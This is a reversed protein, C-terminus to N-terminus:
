GRRRYRQPRHDRGIEILLDARADVEPIVWEFQDKVGEWLGHFEREWAARDGGCAERRQAWGASCRWERSFALDTTLSVLFDVHRSFADYGRTRLGVGFGEFVIWDVPGQVREDEGARERLRKDFRPLEVAVGPRAAKLAGLRGALEMDHAGIAWWHIGRAKREHGRYYFDDISLTAVRAQPELAALCDSVARATTSKGVGPLGNIGVMFCGPRGGKLARLRLALPLYHRWLDASSVASDVRRRCAPFAERLRALQEATKAVGFAEGYVGVGRRTWYELVADELAGLPEGAALRDLVPTFSERIRLMERYSGLLREELDLFVAASDADGVERAARLMPGVIQAETPLLRAPWPEAPDGLREVLLQVSSPLHESIKLLFQERAADFKERFSAHEPYVGKRKGLSVVAEGVASLRSAVRDASEALERPAFGSPLGGDGALLDGCRIDVLRGGSAAYAQSFASITANVIAKDYEAELFRPEVRIEYGRSRALAVIRERDESAGSLSLILYGTGRVSRYEADKGRGIRLGAQYAVARFLRREVAARFFAKDRLAAAEIRRLAEQRLEEFYVGSSALLLYPVQALGRGLAADLLSFYDFLEDLFDPLQDAWPSVIVLEPLGARALGAGFKERIDARRGDLTVTGRELVWETTKSRARGIVADAALSEYFSLSLAGVPYVGIRGAEVRLGGM